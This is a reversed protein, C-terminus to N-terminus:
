IRSKHEKEAEQWLLLMLGLSRLLDEMEWPEDLLHEETLTM